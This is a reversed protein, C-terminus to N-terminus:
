RATRRHKRFQEDYRKCYLAFVDPDALAAPPIGYAKSLRRVLRRHEWWHLV